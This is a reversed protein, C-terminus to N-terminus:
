AEGGEESQRLARRAARKAREATPETGGRPVTPCRWYWEGMAQEVIALVPDAGLHHLDPRLVRWRPSTTM